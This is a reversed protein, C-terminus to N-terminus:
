NKSEKKPGEERWKCRTFAITKIPKVISLERNTIFANWCTCIMRAIHQSRIKRTTVTKQPGALEILKHHLRNRPDNAPVNDLLFVGRWFQVAKNPQGRLTILGCAIIPKRRSLTKMTGKAERAIRFYETGEKMWQRAANIQDSFSGAEARNSIFPPRKKEAWLIASAFRTAEIQSLGSEAQFGQARVNDSLNRSRGVDITAYLDSLQGEDQLYYTIFTFKMKGKWQIVASLRHQGDVLVLRNTDEVLALILPTANLFKGEEMQAAYHKVAGDVIPRNRDFTGDLYEKAKKISIEMVEIDHDLKSMSVQKAM